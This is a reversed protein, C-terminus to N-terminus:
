ESVEEEGHLSELIKKLQRVEMQGPASAKGASAFTVSSGFTEGALRSIMGQRGMSMTIVPGKGSHTKMHETASLLALVDRECQPMVAIKAIDANLDYMFCLRRIIEQEDPTKMFDHNSGVVIMKKQHLCRVLEKMEAEHQGEFFMEVDIMDAQRGDAATILLKSYQEWSLSSEGGERFSRFTLLLPINGILKRIEHLIRLVLETNDAHEFWDVRLELIDAPYRTVRRAEKYIEEETRGVVPVCIKPIGEGIIVQRVTVTNM